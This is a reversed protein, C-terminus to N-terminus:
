REERSMTVAFEVAEVYENQTMGLALLVLLALGGTAATLAVAVACGLLLNMGTSQLNDALVSRSFVRVEICAPGPIQHFQWGERRLGDLALGIEERHMEWALRRAEEVSSVMAVKSGRRDSRNGKKLRYVKHIPYVYIDSVM